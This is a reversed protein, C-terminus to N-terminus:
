IEREGDAASRARCQMMWTCIFYRNSYRRTSPIRSLKADFLDFARRDDGWFDEGSSAMMVALSARSKGESAREKELALTLSGHRSLECSTLGCARLGPGDGLGIARLFGLSGRGRSPWSRDGLCRPIAEPPRQSIDLVWRYKCPSPRFAPRAPM